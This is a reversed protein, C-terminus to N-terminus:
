SERASRQHNGEDRREVPRPLRRSKQRHLRDTVLSRRLSPASGHMSARPHRLTVDAAVTADPSGSPASRETAVPSAIAITPCLPTPCTSAAAGARRARGASRPSTLEGPCRIAPQAVLLQGRHPVPPDAEDELEVVQQALERRQLVHHHRLQDGARRLCPPVRAPARTARAVHPQLRRSVACARAARRRRAAAPPPPAPAPWGAAPAAPRRASRCGRGAFWRARQVLSSKKVTLARFCAGRQHQHRM